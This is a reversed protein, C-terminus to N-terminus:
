ARPRSSVSNNAFTVSNHPSNISSPVCKIRRSANALQSPTRCHLERRQVMTQSILERCCVPASFCVMLYVRRLMTYRLTRGSSAHLPASSRRMWLPRSSTGMKTRRSSSRRTRRTTMETEKKTTPATDVEINCPKFFSILTSRVNRSSKASKETRSHKPLTSMLPSSASMKAKLTPYCPAPFDLWNLLSCLFHTLLAPGDKKSSYAGTLSSSWQCCFFVPPACGSIGQDM